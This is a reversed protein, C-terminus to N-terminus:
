NYDEHNIEQEEKYATYQTLMAIVINLVAWPYLVIGMWWPLQTALIAYLIGEIEWLEGKLLKNM